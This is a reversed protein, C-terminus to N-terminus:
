LCSSHTFHFTSGEGLKSEVWIKGGLREVLNKSISLGLGIGNYERSLTENAQRFIGFISKQLDKPIGIGTDKVYFQFPLESQDNDHKLGYEIQGAETYKLANKLLNLFIQKFRKPDTNLMCLSASDPMHLKLDIHTKNMSIQEAIIMDHIENLLGSLSNTSYTMRIQGTEILSIDFLDEVINLLHEGSQHIMKCFDVATEIPTDMDVISSFGLVANLPTRLEHSMTTLFVSKLRDSERADLLAQKLLEETRKKEISISIQHSVLELIEKDEETVAKENDYSQIVLVGITKNKRKLPMGLWIKSPEGLLEVEGREAMAFLTEIDALLAKGHDIVWGSISKGKPFTEVSDFEGDHYPMYFCEKDEDYLAVFFNKTNILKSLEQKIFSIFDSLTPQSLVANSINLIIEKIQDQRKRQTIDEKVGIFHTIEENKDKLASITAYEWFLDGNKKKNQLEGSWNNGSKITEWLNKYISLPTNGSSLIKPNQGKIENLNYGTLEMFKPNVYEIHGECNTVVVSAPSQIVTQSLKKLEKEANRIHTLDNVSLLCVTEGNLSSEKINVGVNLKENARNVAIAEIYHREKPLGDSYDSSWNDEGMFNFISMGSLEIKSYGTMEEARKNVEIIKDGKIIFIGDKSANALKRYINERDELKEIIRYRDLVIATLDALESIQELEETNLTINNPYYITFTGTKKGSPDKIPELLCSTLCTQQLTNKLHDELPYSHINELIRRKEFLTKTESSIFGDTIPIGHLAINNSDPLNLDIEHLLYKGEEDINYITCISNPIIAQVQTLIQNLISTKSDGRYLKELVDSRFEKKNEM